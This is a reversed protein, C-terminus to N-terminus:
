RPPTIGGPQRGIRAKAPTSETRHLARAGAQGFCEAIGIRAFYRKLAREHQIENLRWQEFWVARSSDGNLTKARNLARQVDAAMDDFRCLNEAYLRLGRIQHPELHAQCTARATVLLAAM